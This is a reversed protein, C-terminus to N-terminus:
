SSLAANQFLEFAPRPTQREYYVTVVDFRWQPTQPFQREPLSRLYDRIVVRIARRKQRDV